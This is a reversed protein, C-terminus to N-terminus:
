LWILVRVKRLASVADSSLQASIFLVGETAYSFRASNPPPHRFALTGSLSPSSACESCQKGAGQLFSTTFWRKSNPSSPGQQTHVPDEAELGPASTASRAVWATCVLWSPPFLGPHFTMELSPCASLMILLFAIFRQWKCKGEGGARHRKM